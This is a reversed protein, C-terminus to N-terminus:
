SLDCVEIGDTFGIRLAAILEFLFGPELDISSEVLRSLTIVAEDLDGASLRLDVTSSEEDPFLPQFAGGAVCAQQLLADVTDTELGLIDQAEAAFLMALRTGTANDGVREHEARWATLAVTTPEFREWGDVEGLFFENFYPTVLSLLEEFGLNGGTAFETASFPIETIPPPIDTYGACFEVGMDFGDQFARVRDFGSGHARQTNPSLGPRDRFSVAAGVAADLAAPKDFPAIGRDVAWAAYSGALCDAQQEVIVPAASGLTDAQFQAVHGFEHALVITPGTDGFSRLLDEFLDDEDWLVLQGERCRAALANDEVDSATLGARACPPLETEDDSLGVIRDRDLPAYRGSGAFAKFSEVWFSEISVVTDAWESAGEPPETTPEPIDLLEPETTAPVATTTTATAALTATPVVTETASPEHLAGEADIGVATRELSLGCASATLTIVIAITATKM